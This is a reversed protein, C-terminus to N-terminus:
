DQEDYNDVNLNLTNYENRLSSEAKVTSKLIRIEDCLDLIDNTMWYQINPRHKGITESAAFISSTEIM